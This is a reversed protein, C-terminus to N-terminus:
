EVPETEQKRCVLFAVIYIVVFLNTIISDVALHINVKGFITTIMQPISCISASILSLYAFSRTLKETQKGIVNCLIKSSFHMFGLIFCLNVIEYINSAIGSMGTYCLFTVLLRVVYSLTPIVLLIYNPKIGIFNFFGLVVFSIGAGVILILKITKLANPVTTPIDTVFFPEVALCVGLMIQSIGLFLNPKPTAIKVNQKCIISLLLMIATAVISILTLINSIGEYSEYYFGTANDTMFMLQLTRITNTLLFTFAVM